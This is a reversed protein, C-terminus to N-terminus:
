FYLTGKDIATKTQSHTERQLRFGGINESDKYSALIGLIRAASVFFENFTKAIKRDSILM